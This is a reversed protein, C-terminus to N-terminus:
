HGAGAGAAFAKWRKRLIVLCGLVVVAALVLGVYNSLTEIVSEIQGAFLYGVGVYFGVWIAAGSAAAVTFKHWSLGGAGSLYTVYPATPSVM